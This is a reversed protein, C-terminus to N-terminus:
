LGRSQLVTGNRGQLRKYAVIGANYSMTAANEPSAAIAKKYYDLAEDYKELKTYSGAIYEYCKDVNAEAAVAKEFYQIAKEYSDSSYAALGINFNIAEPVQVDGLNAMASEYLELAKAYDKAQLAENAQNIKEAADQAFAFVTFCVAVVLLVVKKM